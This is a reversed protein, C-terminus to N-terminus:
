QSQFNFLEPFENVNNVIRRWHDDDWWIISPFKGLRFDLCFYSGDGAMAIPIVKSFDIIYEIFVCDECNANQNSEFSFYKELDKWEATIKSENIFIEALETELKFGYMDFNKKISLSPTFRYGGFKISLENAIKLSMNLENIM